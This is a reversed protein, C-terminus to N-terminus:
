RFIQRTGPRHHDPALRPRRSPAQNQPKDYTLTHKRRTTAITRAPQPPRPAPPRTTTRDPNGAVIAMTAPGAPALMANLSALEAARGTFAPVAPPLQAPVPSPSTGSVTAVPLELAPDPRLIAAHLDRLAPGPAVGLEEGLARRLRQYCALVEAQWGTRYLALMLLAHLQEDLPHDAVTRELDPVLAAHDGAALRTEALAVTARMWLADLQSAQGDFWALGTLDALPQGRWLGLADRLLRAGRVPDASRAGHRLLREAVRADTGDDGLDLVYGPQRAVIAARRGLVGRLYSVHAQLTNPATPPAAEGWVVNTLRDSSVVMGHNLALVALIAKRRLGRM